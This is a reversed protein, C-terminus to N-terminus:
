FNTLWTIASALGLDTGTERQELTFFPQEIDVPVGVGEFEEGSNSVYFENSLTYLLGFPLTKILQDSFGGASREGIVVSDGRERIILALVEASSASTTSTLIAIPGLYNSNGQPKIVVEQLDTRGDGLRTQKSFAVLDSDILRSMINQNVRDTGGKNFRVDIVLGDVGALDSLVADMTETLLQLNEEISLGENGVAEHDMSKFLIYGLNNDIKSWIITGNENFHVEEGDAVHSLIAAEAKGIAEEYYQPFAAFKEDAFPPEIAYVNIFDMIAIDELVPKRSTSFDDGTNMNVLEVHFDKLPAVMEALIEFLEDENTETQVANLAFQYTDDWNVNELHFFSYHEKFTQWFINLETEADFTYDDDGLQSILDMTCSDPLSVKKDMVIGPFKLDALTTIMSNQDSSVQISDIFTSYDIGFFDAFAWTQCTDSTFQYLTYEDDTIDVVVGYAPSSWVGTTVKIEPEDVPPLTPDSSSNCGALSFACLSAVLISLTKNKFQNSQIKFMKNGIKDSTIVNNQQQFHQNM